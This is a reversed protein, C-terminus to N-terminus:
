AVRGFIALLQTQKDAGPPPEVKPGFLGTAKLGDEIPKYREHLVDVSEPDMAEDAGIARALDWGHITLDSFVESIYHEAPAEGYSLHVTRDLP